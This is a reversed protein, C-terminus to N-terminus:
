PRAKYDTPNSGTYYKFVQSFYRTNSGFGTRESIEYIKMASDQELLQKALEIRLRTVYKPFSVGMERNFLRSLYGENVFLVEKALKKLSLESNAINKQVYDVMEVIWKNDSEIPSGKEDAAQSQRRGAKLKAKMKDIIDTLEKRDYPKLLYHHVNYQMAERAYEFEGYGSLIIFQIDPFNESVQKILTLGDMLPMRIDSIVIDVPNSAVYDLAAIGNGRIEVHVYGADQLTRRVGASVIEEDEVILINCM